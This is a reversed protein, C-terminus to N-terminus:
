ATKADTAKKIGFRRKQWSWSRASLSLALPIVAQHYSQPVVIWFVMLTFTIIAHIKFFRSSPKNAVLLYAGYLWSPLAWLINLNGKTASHDTAFWLLLIFIGLLGVVSFFIIDFWKLRIPIFLFCMILCFVLFTWFIWMIESEETNLIKPNAELILGEQGILPTLENERMVKSKAMNDMLYDPLFMKERFNAEEDCPLGLALDIGLDSWNHNVLYLDIMQRFTATTDAQPNPYVLKEGLIKELVDRLRTSCNDYFFDYKYAKNEPLANWELFEYLERKEEFTLTLDQRYVWRGEYQYTRIFQNFTSVNLIYDLKGRAFKLYFNPTDFDFTGYNYVKDIGSKPDYVHLASHGFTAYLENGPGCTILSVRTNETIKQATAAPSLFSTLFIFIAILRM